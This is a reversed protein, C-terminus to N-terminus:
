WSDFNLPSRIFLYAKLLDRTVDCIMDVRSVEQGALDNINLPALDWAVQASTAEGLIDEMYDDVFWHSKWPEAQSINRPWELAQTTEERSGRYTQWDLRKTANKLLTEKEPDTKQLWNENGALYRSANADELTVFTDTWLTIAM